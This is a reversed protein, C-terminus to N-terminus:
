TLTPQPDILCWENMASGQKACVLRLVIDSGAAVATLSVQIAWRSYTRSAGAFPAFTLSSWTQTDTVPATGQTTFLTVAGASSTYQGEIWWETGSPTYSSGGYNADLLMRFTLVKNGAGLSNTIVQRMARKPTDVTVLGTGMGTPAVNFRVSYPTGDPLLSLGSTPFGANRWELLFGATDILFERKGTSSSITQLISSMEGNFINASPSGAVQGCVSAISDSAIFQGMDVPDEVIVQIPIQMTTATLTLLKHHGGGGGTFKPRIFKLVHAVGSTTGALFASTYQTASGFVILCDAVEVTLGYSGTPSFLSAGSRTVHGLKCNRFVTPKSYDATAFNSQTFLIESGTNSGLGLDSTETSDFICHAVGYGTPCNFTLNYGSSDVSSYQILFNPNGGNQVTLGNRCVGTFKVYGRFNITGFFSGVSKSLTFVGSSTGNNWVVGNDFKYQVYAAASGATRGTVTLTAASALPVVIDASARATRVNIVDGGVPLGMVAGVFGGYTGAGSVTANVASTLATPNFFYAWPGSVGGSFNSTAPAATWNALTGCVITNSSKPASAAYNLDASAIRAYVTLVAGSSTAWVLGKLFPAIGGTTTTPLSSTTANIGSAINAALTAGTGANFQGQGAGSAVCTLTAGMVGITANAGATSSTFDMSAVAVAPTAGTGSALGDGEQPFSTSDTPTSMFATPYLTCGHDVYFATM